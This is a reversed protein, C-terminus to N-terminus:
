PAAFAAMTCIVFFRATAQAGSRIRTFATAGPRMSVPIVAPMFPM